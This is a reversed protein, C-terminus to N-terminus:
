VEEPVGVLKATAIWLLEALVDDQAMASTTARRRSAYYGGSETALEPATAAWVTTRAGAAPSRMFPVVKYIRGFFWNERFLATRIMGPHVAYATVGTGDLRRALERTFVINALKSDAYARFSSWETEYQLDTLNIAGGKHALSSVTVVRSPAGKKLADLLLHTLLFPAAHNVAFTEELGDPTIRRENTATGANNVLVHLEDHRGLIEAAVRRVEDLRSFDALHLEPEVKAVAAVRALATRAKEPNRGVIVVQAGLRAFALATETGIGASAGTVVCVRGTLDVDPM